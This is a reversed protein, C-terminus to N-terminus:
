LLECFSEIYKDCWRLLERKGEEKHYEDAVGVVNLGISKATKAASPADEFVWTTDIDAGLRKTCYEYIAPSTKNKGVQECTIIFEFLDFVGSSKLAGEALIAPSGTALCLKVGQAKLKQLYEKAGPKLEKINFYLEKMKETIAATMDQESEPVNYRAKIYENIEKTNWKSVTPGLDKEPENGREILFDEYVKQWYHLSVILTGDLDVIAHTIKM